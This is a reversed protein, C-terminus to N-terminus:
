NKVAMYIMITHYSMHHQLQMNHMWKTDMSTWTGTSQWSQMIWCVMTLSFMEREFSMRLMYSKRRDGTPAKSVKCMRLKNAKWKNGTFYQLGVLTWIFIASLLPLGAASNSPTLTSAYIKKIKILMCHNPKINCTCHLNPVPHHQEYQL